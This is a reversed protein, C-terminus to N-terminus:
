SCPRGVALCVIEQCVGDGCFDKCFREGKQCENRYFQWEECESLDEFVCFSKTGGDLIRNELNGGQEQCYVAAPNALGPEESKSLLQYAWYGIGAIVALVVIILIIKQLM